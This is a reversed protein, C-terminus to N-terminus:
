TMEETEADPAADPFLVYTRIKGAWPAAPTGDAERGFRFQDARHSGPGPRWGAPVGAGGLEGPVVDASGGMPSSSV